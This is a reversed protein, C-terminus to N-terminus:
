HRAHTYFGKNKYHRAQLLAEELPLPPDFTIRTEDGGSTSFRKIESCLTGSVMHIGIAMTTGGCQNVRFIEKLLATILEM